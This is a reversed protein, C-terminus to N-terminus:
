GAYLPQKFPEGLRAMDPESQFIEEPAERHDEDEAYAAALNRLDIQTDQKGLATLIAKRTADVTPNNWITNALTKDGPAPIPVPPQWEEWAIDHPIHDYKFKALEIPALGHSPERNRLGVRVGNPVEKIMEAGPRDLRTLGNNSWLADPVSKTILTPALYAAWENQSPETTEFSVAHVSSLAKIDMPRIGVPKPALGIAEVPKNNLLVSTAPVVSETTFSFEHANVVSRTSKKGNKTVEQTKILGSTIRITGLLPDAGTEEAQPLFSQQFAEWGVKELVPQQPAGFSIDFSIIYLTVTALGGFPPGWMHLQAGIEITLSQNTDLASLVYSVGIRVGMAIDYAFPQWNILFDASAYFWARLPGAQYVASLKGGAMLCSPTLAFYLEGSLALNEGVRWNMGLRPVVPYHAPPVFKPHYGGLTVVFDGTHEPGFWCYLAFGGRLKCEKSFVFSNETLRAEAALLGTSLTFTVKIALEACAVPDVPAAGPLQKPVRIRSLGLIAIQFQTGFSVSLMAFSDIMGFSTFKVGAALWYDGVSPPIYEQLKALATRPTANSGFYEPDTAGKILPFNQVEAITPLKLLRNVGFGFALGTVFFFAPGGLEKHLVAFIFLSPQDRIVAYSGLAALSFVEARVLVRGDYQLSIDPDTPYVRLLAGSIELPKQKVSLELGDLGFELDELRPNKLPLSISLGLLDLRVGLLDMGADFLFGLRQEKYEVGFRELRLPGLSKQIDFWKSIGAAAKAMDVRAPVAGPAPSVAINSPPPASTSTDSPPLM